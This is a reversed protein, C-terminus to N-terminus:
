LYNALSIEEGANIIFITNPTANVFGRGVSVDSHWFDITLGMARKEIVEKAKRADRKTEFKIILQTSGNRDKIALETPYFFGIYSANFRFDRSDPDVKSKVENYEGTEPDIQYISETKPIELVQFDIDKSFSTTSSLIILLFLIKNM